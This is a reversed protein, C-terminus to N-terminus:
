RIIKQVQICKVIYYLFSKCFVFVYKCVYPAIIIPAFAACGVYVVVMLDLRQSFWRSATIFMIWAETQYNLCKHFEKNTHETLGFSRITSIGALTASIHTYLPSRASLLLVTKSGFETECYWDYQIMLGKKDILLWAIPNTM